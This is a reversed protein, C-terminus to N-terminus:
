IIIAIIILEKKEFKEKIRLVIPIFYKTCFLGCIM